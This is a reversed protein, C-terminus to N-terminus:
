KNWHMKEKNQFILVFFGLAFAVLLMYFARIQNAKNCEENIESNKQTVTVLSLIAGIVFAIILFALFVNSASWM